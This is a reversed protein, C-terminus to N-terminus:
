INTELDYIYVYSDEIGKNSSKYAYIYICLSDFVCVYM